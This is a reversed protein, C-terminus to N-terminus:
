RLQEKLSAILDASEDVPRAAARLREFATGYVSVEAPNEVYLATKLNEVLVVDLDKTQEFGLMTFAGSLGPHPTADLPLVQISVQPLETLDLLRQLQDRMITPDAMRLRLAAEHIIAWLELPEPRTLASQRAMRVEVLTDVKEAPDTMNIAKITARAYAATQCLGPILRDQYTRQSTAEAEQTILDVYATSIQDSYPQWWGRQKRSRALRMLRQHVPSDEPIEYVKLLTELDAIKVGVRGTEIRSIKSGNLAAGTRAVVDEIRLGLGDRIQRLEAALQRTRVTPAAM